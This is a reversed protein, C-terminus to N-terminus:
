LALSNWNRDELVRTAAQKGCWYLNLQKTYLDPYIYFTGSHYFANGELEVGSTTVIQVIDNLVTNIEGSHSKYEDSLHQANFASM